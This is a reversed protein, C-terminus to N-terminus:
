VPDYGLNKHLHPNVSFSSAAAVTVTYGDPAAKAASVTGVIGGAGPLNEVVMPAGLTVRMKDAMARIIADTLSGASLPVVIRVPRTPYDQACVGSSVALFALACIMKKSLQTM